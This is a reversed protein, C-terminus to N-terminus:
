EKFFDYRVFTEMAAYSVLSLSQCRKTTEKAVQLLGQKSDQFIVNHVKEYRTAEFRGAPKHRISQM